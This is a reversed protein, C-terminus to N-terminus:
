ANIVGSFLKGYRRRHTEYLRPADPHTWVVVSRHSSLNAVRWSDLLRWSKRSYARNGTLDVHQTQLGARRRARQTSDAYGRRIVRGARIAAVRESMVRKAIREMKKPTPGYVSAILAM